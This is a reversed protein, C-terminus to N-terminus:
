RSGEENGTKSATCPQQCKRAKNGFKHHYWCQDWKDSRSKSRRRNYQEDRSRSRGRIQTKLQAIENILTQLTDDTTSKRVENIQTPATAMIADALDAADESTANRQTALIAQVNAPLRNSWISRLLQNPVTTGALAQLHRLFQSPKRDGIEEQELLRRTKTEQSTSLRRILETKLKEYRNIAPPNTLVDRVEAAYQAELNGAIYSYKTADSTINAVLFQNEAQAFWLEPDNPWFPPLKAQVRNITPANAAANATNAADDTDM